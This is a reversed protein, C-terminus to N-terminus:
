RLRLNNCHWAQTMVGTIFVGCSDETDDLLEQRRVLCYRATILTECTKHAALNARCAAVPRLRFRTELLAQGVIDQRRCRLSLGVAAEREL